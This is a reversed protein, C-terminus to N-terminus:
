PELMHGVLDYTVHGAPVGSLYGVTLLGDRLYETPSLALARAQAV